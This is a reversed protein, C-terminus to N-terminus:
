TIDYYQKLSFFIFFFLRHYYNRKIRTNTKDTGPVEVCTGPPSITERLKGKINNNEKGERCQHFYLFIYASCIHLICMRFFIFYYYYRSFLIRGVFIGKGNAHLPRSDRLFCSQSDKRHKSNRTISKMATLAKRKYM